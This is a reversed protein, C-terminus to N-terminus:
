LLDVDEIDKYAIELRAGLVASETETEREEIHYFTVGRDGVEFVLVPLMVEVGQFQAKVARGKLLQWVAVTPAPLGQAAELARLV